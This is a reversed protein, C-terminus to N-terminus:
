PGKRMASRLALAYGGVQVVASMVLAWSAGMIGHRPVWLWSGAAAVACAGGFLPVQVAFARVATLAYGLFSAVFGLAAALMLVEFVPAHGAYEPTFAIRLVPRGLLAAGAVCAAGLVAGSAALKRVLATFDATRGAAWLSALRPSASQGLAGVVLNGAVVVSSLAAFIGLAREGASRAIFYRPVNANLSILLMVVGLPLGTWAVAAVDRLRRGPTRRDPGRPPELARGPLDYAFLMALSVAAFALVAPLLSRTAFLVGALAALGAIGRAILSRAIRDMRELQQFLGYMVDSVSEIAKALAVALVVLATERGQGGSLAIAGVVLLALTSTAIRLALYDRLPTSFRADTSQVARLQLNALMLVPAILALGLAFRGVAEPDTLKAMAVLVGWQTAAYAANGLLTWSFNVRLSPVAPRAPLAAPIAGAEVSPFAM